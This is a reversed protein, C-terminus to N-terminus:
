HNLDVRQLWLKKDKLCKRLGQLWGFKYEEYTAISPRPSTM